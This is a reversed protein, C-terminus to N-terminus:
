RASIYGWRGSESFDMVKFWACNDGVDGIMLFLLRSINM